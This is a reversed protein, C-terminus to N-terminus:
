VVVPSGLSQITTGDWVGAVNLAAEATGNWLKFASPAPPTIPGLLTATNNVAMNDLYMRPLLNAGSPSGWRAQRSSTTVVSGSLTQIAALSEGVYVYVTVSSGNASAEIRLETNLPLASTSVALATGGPDRLRLIGLATIDLWWVLTNISDRFSFLQANGTPLATLEMYFRISHQALSGPGLNAQWYFQMAPATPNLLELRPSYIGSNHVKITGPATVTVNDFSADGVGALSTTLSTGAAIGSGRWSSVVAM